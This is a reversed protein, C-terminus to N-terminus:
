RAAIMAEFEAESVFHYDRRDEEGHRQARSTVTVVFYCPYGRDKMCQITADKGVGSPGSIVVMIPRADSLDSYWDAAVKGADSASISDNNGM